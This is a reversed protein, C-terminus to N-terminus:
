FGKKKVKLVNPKNVATFTLKIVTAKQSAVRLNTKLRILM